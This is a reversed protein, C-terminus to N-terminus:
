RPAERVKAEVDVGVRCLTLRAWAMKGPGADLGWEVRVVGPVPTGDPMLVRTGQPTGDGVIRIREAM